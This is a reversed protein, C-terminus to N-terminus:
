VHARGIEEDAPIVPRLTPKQEKIRFAAGWKQQRPEPGALDKQAFERWWANVFDPCERAADIICNTFDTAADDMDKSLISTWDTQLLIHTLKVADTNAYDWYETVHNDDNREGQISLTAFVPFHDLTSFSSLLGSDIIFKTNSTVFLDRLNHTDNEIRTPQDILQTLGITDTADRLKRDFATLGSHQYTDPPLFLNGVNLDGTLLVNPSYLQARTM